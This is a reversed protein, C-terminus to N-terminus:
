WWLHQVEGVWPKHKILAYKCYLCHNEDERDSSLKPYLMPVHNIKLYSCIKNKRYANRGVAFKQLFRKFECHHYTTSM